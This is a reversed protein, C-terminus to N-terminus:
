EDVGAYLLGVGSETTEMELWQRIIAMHRASAAMAATAANGTVFSLSVGDNSMGAIERGAAIGGMSEEAYLANILDYACYKVSERIPTENEIRYHTARDILRRAKAEIRAFSEEPISGGMMEFQDFKLYM